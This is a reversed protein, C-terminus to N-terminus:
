QRAEQYKALMKATVVIIDVLLKEVDHKDISFTATHRLVLDDISGLFLQCNDDECYIGADVFNGRESIAFENKPKKGTM